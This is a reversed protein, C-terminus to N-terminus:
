RIQTRELLLTRADVTGIGNIVEGVPYLFGTTITWNGVYGRPTSLWHAARCRVIISVSEDASPPVM